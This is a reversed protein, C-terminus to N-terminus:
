QGQLHFFSPLCIVSSASPNYDYPVFNRVISDDVEVEDWAM